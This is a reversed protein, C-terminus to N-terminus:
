SSGLGITVTTASPQRGCSQGIGISSIPSGQILGAGFKGTRRFLRLHCAWRGCQTDSYARFGQAVLGHFRRVPFVFGM